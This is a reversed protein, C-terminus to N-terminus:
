AIDDLIATINEQPLHTLHPMLKKLIEDSGHIHIAERIENIVNEPTRNANNRIDSMRNKNINPLNEKVVNGILRKYSM